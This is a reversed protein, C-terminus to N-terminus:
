YNTLPPGLRRLAAEIAIDHSARLSDPSQAVGRSLCTHDSVRELDRCSATPKITVLTRRTAGRPHDASATGVAHALSRFVPFQLIVEDSSVKSVDRPKTHIDAKLAFASTSRVDGFQRSHGLESM